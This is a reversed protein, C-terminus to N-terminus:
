TNPLPATTHLQLDNFRDFCDHANEIIVLNFKLFIFWALLYLRIINQTTLVNNKKSLLYKLIVTFIVCSLDYPNKYFCKLM